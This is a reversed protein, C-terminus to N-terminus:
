RRTVSAGSVARKPRRQRALALAEAVFWCARRWRSAAGRVVSQPALAFHMAFSIPLFAGLM